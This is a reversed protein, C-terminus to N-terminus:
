PMDISIFPYNIELENWLRDYDELLEELSFETKTYPESMGAVSLVVLCAFSLLFAVLLLSVHKKCM